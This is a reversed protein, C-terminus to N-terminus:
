VVEAAQCRWLTGDADLEPTAIVRFVRGTSPGEAIECTDQRAPAAVDVKFVGLIATAQIVRGRGLEVEADPEELMVGVAVGSGAGGARWLAPDTLHARCADDVGAALDSFGPM